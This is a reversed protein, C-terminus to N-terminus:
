DMEYELRCGVADGVFSGMLCGFAKITFERKKQDAILKMLKASNLGFRQLELIFGINEEIIEDEHKIIGRKVM